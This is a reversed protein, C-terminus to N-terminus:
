TQLKELQRKILDEAHEADSKALPRLRIAAGSKPVIVLDFWVMLFRKMSIYDIDALPIATKRAESTVRPRVLEVRDGFIRLRQDRVSSVQWASQRVEWIPHEDSMSTVAGARLERQRECLWEAFELQSELLGISCVAGRAEPPHASTSGLVALRPGQDHGTAM